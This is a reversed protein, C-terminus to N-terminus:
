CQAARVYKWANEKQLEESIDERFHVEEIRRMLDEKSIQENKFTMILEQM